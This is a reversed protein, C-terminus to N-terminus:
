HAHPNSGTAIALHHAQHHMGVTMVGIFGLARIRQPDAGLVTLVAGDSAEAATMSWGQTGNITAAHATVMRRISAAVAPDPSSVTFRAGGEINEVSVAARLTVNDMDILHQRLAEINVTKWDTAPDKMLMAVIEGIASFASQGAEAPLGGVGPAMSSHDMTQAMKLFHLAPPNGPHTATGDTRTSADVGTMKESATAPLAMLCAIVCAIPCSLSHSHPKM